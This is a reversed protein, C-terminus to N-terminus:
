RVISDFHITLQPNIDHRSTQSLSSSERQSTIEIAKCHKISIELRYLNCDEKPHSILKYITQYSLPHTAFCSIDPNIEVLTKFDLKLHSKCQFLKLFVEWNIDSPSGWEVKMGSKKGLSESSCVIGAAKWSDHIMLMLIEARGVVRVRTLFLIFLKWRFSWCFGCFNRIKKRGTIVKWRACEGVNEVNLLRTSRLIHHYYNFWRWNHCSIVRLKQRKRRKITM